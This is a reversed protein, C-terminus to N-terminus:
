GLRRELTVGFPVERSVAVTYSTYGHQTVLVGHHGDQMAYGRVIEEAATLEQDLTAADHATVELVGDSRNKIM